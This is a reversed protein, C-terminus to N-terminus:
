IDYCINWFFKSFFGKKIKRGTRKGWGLYLLNSLVRGILPRGYLVDAFFRLLNVEGGGKDSFNGCQSFEEMTRLSVGYIEFFVFNKKADFLASAPM